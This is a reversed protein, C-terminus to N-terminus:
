YMKDDSIFLACSVLSYECNMVVVRLTQLCKSQIEESLFRLNDIGVYRDPMPSAIEEPTDDVSMKSEAITASTDTGSASAVIKRDHTLCDSM